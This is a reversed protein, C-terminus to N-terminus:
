LRIIMELGFRSSSVALENAVIFEQVKLVVPQVWKSQKCIYILLNRNLFSQVFVPLTDDIWKKIIIILILFKDIMINYIRLLNKKDGATGIINIFGKFNIKFIWHFYFELNIISGTNRNAETYM